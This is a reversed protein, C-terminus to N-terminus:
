LTKVLVKSRRQFNYLSRKPEPLATNALAPVPSWGKAVKVAASRGGPQTPRMHRLKAEWGNRAHAPQGAGRGRDHAM